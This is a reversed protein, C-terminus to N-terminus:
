SLSNSGASDDRGAGWKGRKKGELHDGGEVLWVGQLSSRAENM